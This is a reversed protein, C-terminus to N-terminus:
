LWSFDVERVFIGYLVLSNQKEIDFGVFDSLVLLGLKLPQSKNTVRIENFDTRVPAQTTPAVLPRTPYIALSTSLVMSPDSNLMTEWGLLSDTKVALRAQDRRAAVTTRAPTTSTGFNSTIFHLTATPTEGASNSINALVEVYLPKVKGDPLLNQNFIWRTLIIGSGSAAAEAGDDISYKLPPDWTQNILVQHTQGYVVEQTNM